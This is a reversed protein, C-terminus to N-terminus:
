RRPWTPRRPTRARARRGWPSCPRSVSRASPWARRSATAVAWSRVRPCRCPSWPARRPGPGLEKPLAFAFRGTFVEGVRWEPTPVWDYGTPLDFTFLRGQDDSLFGLVRFREKEELRTYRVGVEVYFAKGESVEASPVDFGALEVGAEFPVVRGASGNWDPTLLLERRVHHGMHNTKDSIAFGPIEVYDRKWEAFTPVRSKSAWGGHVHAVDPKKEKFLYEQTFPRQKHTHHAVSVDVLGAMDVMQTPSWYTHAGMDVDLNRILRDKVFLREMVWDTYEVRRKVSFPGTERKGFFWASHTFFGPLPALLLVTAVLWGPTSWGPRGTRGFSRQFLSAFEEVGVAFLVAMPVSLFSVWRFGKMWDGGSYIAFFLTILASCWLLVRPAARPGALALLPTVLAVGYLLATRVENWGDFIPLDDPWAEFTDTMPSSPYLLAFASVVSAAVALWRRWGRLGTLGAVFVPLFWGIGTEYGWNRLYKLGANAFNLWLVKDGLTKAYFTNPWWWAFYVYSWAEYAGYPVFFMLLWAITSRIGRGASLAAVMAYFGGLAGYLIGDPRTLALGLYWLSAWPTGGRRAEVFTRWLGGALFFSFISNELGSANWFAFNPFCALIVPAFLPAWSEDDNVVEKAILWALVITAGGFGMAMWKASSFGDIGVLYFLGMLFTWSANTFGEVREHGPFAVWGDGAAWNRAYAFSIAADEIYWEWLRPKIEQLVAGKWRFVPGYQHVMSGLVSLVLVVATVLRRTRAADAPAPNSM